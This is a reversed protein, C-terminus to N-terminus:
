GELEASNVTSDVYTFHDVAKTVLGCITILAEQKANVHLSKAKVMDIDLGTTKAVSFLGKTKGLM